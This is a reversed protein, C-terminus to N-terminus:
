DELIFNFSSYCEIIRVPSLIKESTRPSTMQLTPPQPPPLPLSSSAPSIVFNCSSSRPTSAVSPLPTECSSLNGQQSFSMSRNSITSIGPTPGPTPDQSQFAPSAINPTSSNSTPAPINITLRGAPKRGDNSKSTPPHSSDSSKAVSSIRMKVRQLDEEFTTQRQSSPVSTQILNFQSQQAISSSVKPQHRDSFSGLDANSDSRHRIDILGPSELPTGLPPPPYPPVLPMDFSLFGLPMEIGSSPTRGHDSGSSSRSIAPHFDSKQRSHSTTHSNRRQSIIPMRRFLCAFLTIHSCEVIGQINGDLSTM